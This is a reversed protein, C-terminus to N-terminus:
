KKMELIWQDAQNVIKSLVDEKTLSAYKQSINFSHDAHEIFLSYAKPCKSIVEKILSLDALADRTGQIFLQPVSIAYLHNAREISKKGPAHLPFGFYIIGKIENATNQEIWHSCIRGGYSKGSLFVPLQPYEKKVYSIVGGVTKINPQPRGPLKKGNEMYPFNFRLVIGNKDAIGSAIKNLFKNFIGAGAGHALLLIYKPNESANIKISVEGTEDNIKIKQM